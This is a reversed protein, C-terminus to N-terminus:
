VRWPLKQKAHAYKRAPILKMANDTVFQTATDIEGSLIYKTCTAIFDFFPKPLDIVDAVGFAPFAFRYWFVVSQRTFLKNGSIKYQGYRVLGDVSPSLEYGNRALVKDVAEYDDPLDFEALNAYPDDYYVRGVRVSDDPINYEVAKEMFDSNTMAFRNAILRMAKNLANVIDWDSYKVENIDKEEIRVQRIIDAVAIGSM